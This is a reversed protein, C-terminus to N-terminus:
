TGDLHDLGRERLEAELRVRVRAAITEGPACRDAKREESELIPWREQTFRVLGALLEVRASAARLKAVLAAEKAALAAQDVDLPIGGDPEGHDPSV